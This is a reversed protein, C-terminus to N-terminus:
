TGGSVEEALREVERLAPCGVRERVGDASEDGYLCAILALLGSVLNSCLMKARYIIVVSLDNSSARILASQLPVQACLPPLCPDIQHEM